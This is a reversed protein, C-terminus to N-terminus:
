VRGQLSYGPASSRSISQNLQRLDVAGWIDEGVDIVNYVLEQAIDDGMNILWIGIIPFNV